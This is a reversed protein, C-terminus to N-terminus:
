IKQFRQLAQLKEFKAKEKLKQEEKDREDKAIVMEVYKRNTEQELL